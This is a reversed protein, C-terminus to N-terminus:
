FAFRVSLTILNGHFNRPAFLDQYSGNLDEHGTKRTHSGVYPAPDSPLLTAKAAGKEQYATQKDGSHGSPVAWTLLLLVALNSLSRRAKM